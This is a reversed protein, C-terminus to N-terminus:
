AAHNLGEQQEAQENVERFLTELDRQEPTLRFLQGDVATAAAIAASVGRMDAGDHLTIHYIQADEAAEPQPESVLAAVGDIAGLRASANDLRAELLLRNSRRLEELRADVALRGNRLM